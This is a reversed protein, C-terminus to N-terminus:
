ARRDAIPVARPHGSRAARPTGRPRARGHSNDPWPAGLLQTAVAYRRHAAQLHGRATPIPMGPEFIERLVDPRRKAVTLLSLAAGSPKRRGQEWEQLTRKSVGLVTAFKDQSLGVSARVTTIESVNVRHVRHTSKLGARVERMGDRIEKAIDRKADRALLAKASLRAM